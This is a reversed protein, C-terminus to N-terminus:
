PCIRSRKLLPTTPRQPILILPTHRWNNFNSFQFLKFSTFTYWPNKLCSNSYSCSISNHSEFQEAVHGYLRRNDKRRSTHRFLPHRTKGPLLIVFLPGPHWAAFVRQSGNFRYGNMAQFAINLWFRRM